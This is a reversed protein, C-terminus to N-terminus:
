KTYVGIADSEPDYWYEADDTDVEKLHIFSEKPAGEPDTVLVIDGQLFRILIKMTENDSMAENIKAKVGSYYVVFKSGDRDLEVDTYYQSLLKECEKQEHETDCRVGGEEETFTETLQILTKNIELPSFEEFKEPIVAETIVEAEVETPVEPAEEAKSEDNDEPEETDEVEEHLKRLRQIETECVFIKAESASKFGQGILESSPNKVYWYNDSNILKYGDCYEQVGFNETILNLSDNMSVTTFSNKNNMPYIVCQGIEDIDASVKTSTGEEVLMTANILISIEKTKYIGEDTSVTEQEIVPTDYDVTDDTNADEFKMDLSNPTLIIQGVDDISATYEFPANNVSFMKVRVPIQISQEEVGVEIDEHVKDLTNM